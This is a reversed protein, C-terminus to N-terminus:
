ITNWNERGAKLEQVCLIKANRGETQLWKQVAKIKDENGLGNQNLSIMMLDAMQVGKDRWVVEEPTRIAARHTGRRRGSHTQIWQRKHGKQKKGVLVKGFGKVAEAKVIQCTIIKWARPAEESTEEQPLKGMRSDPQKTRDDRAARHAGKSSRFFHYLPPKADFYRSPTPEATM